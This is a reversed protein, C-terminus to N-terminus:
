GNCVALFDIILANYITPLTDLIQNGLSREVVSVIEKSLGARELGTWGGFSLIAYECPFCLSKQKSLDNLMQDARASTRKAACAVVQNGIQMARHKGGRRGQRRSGRRMEHLNPCFLGAIAPSFNLQFQPLHEAFGVTM